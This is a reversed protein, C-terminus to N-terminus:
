SALEFRIRPCPIGCLPLSDDHVNQVFGHGRCAHNQAVLGMPSDSEKPTKVLFLLGSGAVSLARVVFNTRTPTHYWKPPCDRRLGGFGTVAFSSM